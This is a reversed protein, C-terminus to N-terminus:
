VDYGHHKTAIKGTEKSTPIILAFALPLESADGDDKHHHNYFGHFSFALNSAFGFPSKDGPIKLFNVEAFSPILFKNMYSQNKKGCRRRFMAVIQKTREDYIQHYGSHISRFTKKVINLTSQNEKKPPEELNDPDLYYEDWVKQQEVIKERPEQTIAPFLNIFKVKRQVIQFGPPPTALTFSVAGIKERGTRRRMNRYINIRQQQHANQQSYSDNKMHALHSNH